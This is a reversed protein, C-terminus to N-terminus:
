SVKFSVNFIVAGDADYSITSWGQNVRTQYFYGYDNAPGVYLCINCVNSNIALVHGMFNGIGESDTAPQFPFDTVRLEGGASGSTWNLTGTLWVWKGIKVYRGSQDNYTATGAGTTGKIKPTWTGEEYDDLANAQADDGNFSIGRQSIRACESDQGSNAWPSQNQVRGNVKFVHATAGSDRGAIYNVTYEGGSDDVIRLGGYGNNTHDLITDGGKQSLQSGNYTLNAEANLNTGDGTVVRNDANNSVSVGSAPLSEFSPDAGNNARLFKGDNNTDGHELKALSISNDALKSGAINAANTIHSNDIEPAIKIGTVADNQIANTDVANNALESAEIQDAPIKAKTIADDKVGDTSIKTLAM